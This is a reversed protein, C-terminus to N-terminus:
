YFISIDRDKLWNALYEDELLNNQINRYKILSDLPVDGRKEGCILAKEIRKRAVTPSTDFYKITIKPIIGYNELLIESTNEYIYGIFNLSLAMCDCVVGKKDSQISNLGLITDRIKKTFAKWVIINQNSDFINYDSGFLEHRIDDTSIRIWGKQEMKQSWTTKGSGPIGSTLILKIDRSM